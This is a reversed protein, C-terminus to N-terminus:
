EYFSLAEDQQILLLSREICQEGNGSSKSIPM